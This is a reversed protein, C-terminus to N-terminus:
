GDKLIEGAEELSFDEELNVDSPISDLGNLMNVAMTEVDAGKLAPNSKIAAKALKRMKVIQKAPNKKRGANQITYPINCNPCHYMKINGHDVKKLEPNGSCKVCCFVYNRAKDIARKKIATM